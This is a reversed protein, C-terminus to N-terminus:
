VVAGFCARAAHSLPWVGFHGCRDLEDTAFYDGDLQRLPVGLADM